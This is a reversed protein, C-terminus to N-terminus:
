ARELRTAPGREAHDLLSRALVATTVPGTGNPVPTIAGAVGLVADFDVDGVLRDDVANIGFDIVTAGPRVHTAGILRPRGAAALLVDAQRTFSALDPTRSHCIVVTADAQLLLQALPRGVVPGRGVVVATRGALPTGADRVIELGAVPASPVPAPRGQALAGANLPHVGDVDKDAPLHRAVAESTLPPPLPLHVLIGDVARDSGLAALLRALEPEAVGAPLPHVAAALGHKAVAQIIQRLYSESAPDEGVRM